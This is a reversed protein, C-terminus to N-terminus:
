VVLEDAVYERMHVAGSVTLSTNVSACAIGCSTGPKLVWRFPWTYPQNASLVVLGVGRSNLGLGPPVNATSGVIVQIGNANLPLSLQSRRTDLWGGQDAPLLVGAQSMDSSLAYVLQIAEVSATLQVVFLSSPTLNSIYCYAYQAATPGRSVGFGFPIYGALSNQDELAPVNVSLSAEPSMVPTIGGNRISLLRRIFNDLRSTQIENYLM